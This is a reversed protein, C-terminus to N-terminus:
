LLIQYVLKNLNLSLSLFSLRQSFFYFNGLKLNKNWNLYIVKILSQSDNPFVVHWNQWM